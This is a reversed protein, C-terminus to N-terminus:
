QVKKVGPIVYKGEQVLETPKYLRLLLSFPGDQPTPLWNSEHGIPADKQIYIDLSGDPNFKLGETRDGISFRNIANTTFFRDKDYMSLSWFGKTIENNIISPINNKDFHLVYKNTSDLKNGDSDVMTTPYITETPLNLGLFNKSLGARILYDQGFQGGQLSYNWGNTNIGHDFQYNVVIDHADNVARQLGRLIAPDLKEPHFGHKLDIGINEMSLLIASDAKPPLNQQMLKTMWTFYKTADQYDDNTIKPSDDHYYVENNDKPDVPYIKIQDQLAHIAPLDENNKVLIRTGIVINNTPAKILHVGNPKKGKWNPGVVMYKGGHKAEEMTINKFTNDYIDIFQVVFYRGGMDPVELYYAGKGKSFDMPAPSYLTDNNPSVIRKNKDDALTRLHYIQNFTTPGNISNTQKQYTAKWDVLPIGYAYAQIGISYALDEKYKDETLISTEASAHLVNAFSNNHNISPIGGSTLVAATAMVTFAAIVAKKKKSRKKMM